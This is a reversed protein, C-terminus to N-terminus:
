GAPWPRLRVPTEVLDVALAGVVVPQTRTRLLVVDGELRVGLDFGIQRQRGIIRVLGDGTPGRRTWSWDDADLLSEIRDLRAATAGAIGQQRATAEAGVADLSRTPVWRLRVESPESEDPFLARWREVLGEVALTEAADAEDRAVRPDIRRRRDIPAPRAVVDVDDTLLRRAETLLPDDDSM